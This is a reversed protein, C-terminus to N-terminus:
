IGGAYHAGRRIAAKLKAMDIKSCSPPLAALQRPTMGEYRCEDCHGSSGVCQPPTYRRCRRCCVMRTLDGGPPFPRGAQWAADFWPRSPVIRELNARDRKLKRRQQHVVAAGLARIAEPTTLFRELEGSTRRVKARRKHRGHGHAVM